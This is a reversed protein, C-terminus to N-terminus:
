DIQHYLKKAHLYALAADWETHFLGLNTKKGYIRIQAQWKRVDKRWYYGKVDRRNYQNQQATVLRLNSMRNDAELHNIHDIQLGKPIPGKIQTWLYRHMLGLTGNYCYGKKNIKWECPKQQLIKISGPDLVVVEPIILKKQKM